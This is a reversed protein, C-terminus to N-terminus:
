RVSFRYGIRQRYTQGPQLVASPFGPHHPADPFGQPEFAFGASQRYAGGRGAVSGYLHNGSYLQLGPQTTHLELMRGSAADYARAALRPEISARGALVFYHDYGQGFLLQEDPQRIRAGLATPERFDFPTGAVPRIEGTPIQQPDTPLFADAFVTVVQGLACGSEPGALNFYPHTSLNVLTAETTSAEFELWLCDSELRYTAKVSLEGPFGQDGDPSLLTLVLTPHPGPMAAALEWYVKDFGVPGGHLTNGRDNVPLRHTHGDLTFTGGAIRNATRGLLAGFAGGARAYAAVDDFGLLVEGARGHRDPTEISVIRGGYDTIRVRLEATQLTHLTASRGDPTRGFSESTLESRMIASTGANAATNVM